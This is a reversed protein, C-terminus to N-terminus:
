NALSCGKPKAFILKVNLVKLPKIRRPIIEVTSHKVAAPLNDVELPPFSQSIASFHNALREACERDSLNEDVFDAIFVKKGKINDDPGEGLKRIASYASGRKGVKVEDIVRNKYKEAEKKLEVNFLKKLELYKRSKGEREYVRM